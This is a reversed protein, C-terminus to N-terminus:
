EANEVEAGAALQQRAKAAAGRMPQRRGAAARAQDKSPASGDTADVQLLTCLAPLMKVLQTCAPCGVM